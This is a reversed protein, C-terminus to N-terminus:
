RWNTRTEGLADALPGLWPEFHRWQDLGERFIPRRVQESSATRVARENEHFRLCTAEFPLHCYELLRRVQTETDDILDEYIVRHIRGPLITDFHRMLTVYDRYFLGLETLDYTYAQGRSFHQKFAAFGTAMPHRRVDIIRAQPLIMEILGIHQFNNPMKDIFRTRDLARYRRTREIYRDGLAAREAGNLAALRALYAASDLTASNGGLTRAIAAIETLERTGEVASHSALIQEVLTSGSRPLGVVFIPAISDAGGGRREAFFAPTFLDISRQVHATNKEASYDLQGRRLKAGEAYHDFAAAYDRAEERARGLGFQLHLRDEISCESNTLQSRMAAEQDASFPATKLDALRWYAEGLGPSLAICRNYAAVADNARGATKLAIGYHLWVDSQDPHERLVGEYIEVARDDEGVAGLASALLVRHGADHPDRAVLIQIEALAEEHKQLRQLIVARSRRADLFGPARELCGALLTEADADRGLRLEVDALLRMAAIQTPVRRLHEQLLRRAVDIRGDHAARAAQILIPDKASCRVHELYAADAGAADGLLFLQDGLARWAEQMDPKLATARRLAEGAKDAKGLAALTVGLEYHVSAANPQAKALPALVARAGAADGSRRRAAGLILTAQPTNPASKLIERARREALAPNHDLVQFAQDLAATLARFRHDIASM